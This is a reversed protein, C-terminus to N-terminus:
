QWQLLPVTRFVTYQMYLMLFCMQQWGVLDVPRFCSQLGWSATCLSACDPQSAPAIQLCPLIDSGLDPLLDV